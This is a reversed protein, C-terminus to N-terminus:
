KQRSLKYMAYLCMVWRVAFFVAAAAAVVVFGFDFGRLNLQVALNSFIAAACLWLIANIRNAKIEERRKAAQLQKDGLEAEELKRRYEAWHGEGKADREAVHEAILRKYCSAVVQAIGTTSERDGDIGYYGAIGEM